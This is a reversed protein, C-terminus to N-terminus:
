KAIIVTAPRIVKGHLRWGPQVQRLILGNEVGEVTEEAIAEHLLPDFTGTTQIRELGIEGFVTEWSSRVANLGSIWSEFKKKEAENLMTIDPTYSMALEFQDIAPLLSALLRQNAYKKLDDRERESDRKLNLYDAQARKWGALYEHEPTEQSQEPEQIHPEDM